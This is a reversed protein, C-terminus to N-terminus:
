FIGKLSWILIVTVSIVMSFHSHWIRTQFASVVRFFQNKLVSVPQPSKASCNVSQRIQKRVSSRQVSVEFTDSQALSRTHTQKTHFLSSRILSFHLIQYFLHTSLLGWACLSVTNGHARWISRKRRKRAGRGPNLTRSSSPIHRHAGSLCLAYFSCLCLSLCLAWHKEPHEATVFCM